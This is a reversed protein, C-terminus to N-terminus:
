EGELGRLRRYGGALREHEAELLPFVYRRIAEWREAEIRGDAEADELDARANNIADSAAIVEMLELDRTFDDVSEMGEGCQCCRVAETTEEGDEGMIGLFVWGNWCACPRVPAPLVDPAEDM